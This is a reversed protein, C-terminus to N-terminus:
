FCAAIGALIMEYFVATGYHAWLGLTAAILLVGIGSLIVLPLSIRTGAAREPDHVATGQDAM